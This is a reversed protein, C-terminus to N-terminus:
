IAHRGYKFRNRERLNVVVALDHVGLELREPAAGGDGRGGQGGLPDLALADVGRGLDLVAVDGLLQRQRGDLQM